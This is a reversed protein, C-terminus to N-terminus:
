LCDSYDDKLTERKDEIEARDERLAEITRQLENRWFESVHRVKLCNKLRETKDEIGAELAEIESEINRAEQYREDHEKQEEACIRAHEDAAHAADRWSDYIQAFVVYEGNSNWKYSALYRGHSLYLVIGRMTSDCDADAYWGTHDVAASAGYQSHVEDAFYWKRGPLSSEDFTTWCEVKKGYENNYGASLGSDSDFRAYRARRWDIKHGPKDGGHNENHSVVFGRLYDLRRRAGIRLNLYTTM